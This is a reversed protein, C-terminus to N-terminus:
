TWDAETTPAPQTAPPLPLFPDRTTATCRGRAHQRLEAAFTKLASGVFRATGDPHHCAGRNTVLALWRETDERQKRTPNRSALQALATAIRPLGNLCPGCQGASEAALYRAVRATEKLGCVTDPLFAIVGAGLTASRAKLTRNDLTLNAAAEAPLWTGHYGGLLVAQARNITAPTTLETLKTGIPIESVDPSNSTTHVTVLMTGPEAPTGVQRFWAPGYRAILALHALTEVNHVAIGRDPVRPPTFTPLAPGGEVRNVLATEQGALFRPPATIINVEYRTGLGATARERLARALADHQGRHLYLCAGTAGIAEAVLQLGDLVLHPRHWLLAADKRSAPESEAGNAIALRVASASRARGTVNARRAAALKRHVPFAAGGRGTLGSLEANDILDRAGGPPLSGFRSLHARLDEHVGPVPPLLRPLGAAQRAAGGVASVPVADTVDAAHVADARTGTM